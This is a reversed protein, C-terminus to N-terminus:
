FKFIIPWSLAATRAFWITEVMAILMLNSSVSYVATAFVEFMTFQVLFLPLILGLVFPITGAWLGFAIAAVIIVRGISSVVTAMTTAGRRLMLEFSLFFPLMLFSALLMVILREPTLEPRHVTVDYAGSLVVIAGFAIAAAFLTAGFGGSLRRLEEPRLVAIGVLLMAGAIALWSVVVHGDYISLFSAEPATMNLPMAVLLAIALAALGLWGINTPTRREWATTMGACVRGIPILLLTFLAMCISALSLRPDKLKPAAVHKIGFCGDLWQIITGAADASWGITIHNLGPMEVSEVATGAAFDGYLKGREIKEVGVIHAALMDSLNHLFAPDNEAFIFLANRPREPGDLSFGGSIMVAGKLSADHTAYDLVAGAGMSHGMVVIRSGDVRTSQRLFEVANKVDERLGDGTQNDAFSNRNEGHGRVDIALVGYGNRAIRRALTSMFVRDSSYGHVLVVAAPRQEPPKPVIDYFLNDPGPRNSAGPLYLTAPMGGPLSVSQHPPPGDEYHALRMLVLLFIIAVVVSGWLYANRM